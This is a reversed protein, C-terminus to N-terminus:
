KIGTEKLLAKVECYYDGLYDFLQLGMEEAFVAEVEHGSRQWHEPM